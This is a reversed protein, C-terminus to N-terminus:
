YKPPAMNFGWAYTDPYDYKKLFIERIRQIRRHDWAGIFRMISLTYMIPTGVFSDNEADRKMIWTAWQSAEVAPQCIRPSRLDRFNDGRYVTTFFTPTQFCVALVLADLIGMSIYGSKNRRLFLVFGAGFEVCVRNPLEDTYV